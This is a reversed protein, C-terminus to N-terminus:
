RVKLPSFVMAVAASAFGRVLFAAVLLADALWDGVAPPLRTPFTACIM